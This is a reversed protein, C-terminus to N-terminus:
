NWEMKMHRARLQGCAGEIDQGLSRRVTASLGVAELRALFAYVEKKSPSRFAGSVDNYPILNIHCNIGGALRQLAVVDEAQDNFGQILIYEFIIRRATKQAYAKMAGITQDLDYKRAIPMLEERKRQIASHLSLCLTLPMKEEALRLIGPVVGCTSLSINRYSVGLTEEEHVMRLFAMVNDYNALPEGTGMLVLNTISRGGGQDANACLVQSLLEAATLNRILGGRTSACFACGMACGAQTSICLTRGYEYQMAVCEIYNGDELRLLYKVTGDQSVQKEAIDLYGERYKEALTVRLAAPLNSMKSFPVYACLWKKLQKARFPKEGMEVLLEALRKEELGILPLKESM